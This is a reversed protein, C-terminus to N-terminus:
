LCGERMIQGGPTIQSSIRTWGERKWLAEEGAKEIAEDESSAEVQVVTCYFARMIVNVDYKM